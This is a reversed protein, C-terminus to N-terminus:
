LRKEVSKANLGKQLSNNDNVSDVTFFKVKKQSILHCLRIRENDLAM